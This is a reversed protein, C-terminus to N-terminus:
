QIPQSRPKHTTLSEIQQINLFPNPDIISNINASLAQSRHSITTYHQAPTVQYHIYHILLSIM